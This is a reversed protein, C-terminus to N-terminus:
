TPAKLMILIRNVFESWSRVNQTLSPSGLGWRSLSDRYLEPERLKESINAAISGFQQEPLAALMASVEDVDIPERRVAYLDSLDQHRGALLKLVWLGEPRIVRISRPTSHARLRLRISRHKQALWEYLVRAGSERARVGGFFLDSTVEGSKARLKRLASSEDESGMTLKVGFKRDTLFRRTARYSSDPLVLDVDVSFRPPGYAADAYGGILISGEVQQIEDLFRVVEAERRIPDM